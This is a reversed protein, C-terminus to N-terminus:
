ETKSKDIPTICAPAYNYEVGNLIYFTNGIIRENKICGCVTCEKEHRYKHGIKQWKHRKVKQEM